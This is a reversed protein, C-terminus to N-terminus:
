AEKAAVSRDVAPDGSAHSASKASRASAVRDAPTAPPLHRQRDPRSAPRAAPVATPGAAYPNRQLLGAVGAAAILLAVVAVLLGAAGGRAVYVGAGATLACVLYLALVAGPESLGLGVLRHSAHDRGGQSVPRGARLRSITVLSTDGILVACIVIPVLLAAAPGWGGLAAASLADQSRLALAAITFGIFLSGCDGMFIRAPSFNFLLFGACAGAVAFAFAAMAYDGAGLLIAGIASLVITAIGSSLGDMNDLLNLANTIGIVWFVTLPASLWLPWSPAVRIGVAILACACAFETILKPRPMVSRRDDVFGLVFMVASALWIVGSARCAASQAGLLAVTAAAFIAIGGMLATPRQSWRDARPKAIWGRRWALRMVAPTVLPMLLLSAVGAAPPVFQAQLM